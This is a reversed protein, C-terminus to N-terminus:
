KNMTMPTSVEGPRISIIDLEPYEYNLSLSLRDIYAKSAAYVQLYPMPTVGAMSAVNVIACKLKKTQTRKQM